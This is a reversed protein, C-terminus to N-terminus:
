NSDKKRLLHSNTFVPLRVSVRRDFILIMNATVLESIEGSPMKM